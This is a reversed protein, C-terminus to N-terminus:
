MESAAKLEKMETTLVVTCMVVHNNIRQVRQVWQFNSFLGLSISTTSTDHQKKLGIGKWYIPCRRWRRNM